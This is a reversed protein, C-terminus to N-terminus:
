IILVFFTIAVGVFYVCLLWDTNTVIEQAM